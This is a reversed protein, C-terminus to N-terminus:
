KQKKRKPFDSEEWGKLYNKQNPNLIGAAIARMLKQM